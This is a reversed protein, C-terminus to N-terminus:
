NGARNDTWATYVRCPTSPKWPAVAAGFQGRPAACVLVGDATWQSVGSSNLKQAYVDPEGSRQDSWTYYTNGSADRTLGGLYQWGIAGCVPVGANGAVWQVSGGS